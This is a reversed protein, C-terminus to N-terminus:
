HIAWERRDWNMHEGRKHAQELGTAICGMAFAPTLARGYVTKADSAPTINPLYELSRSLQHVTNTGDDHIHYKIRDILSLVGLRSARPRSTSVQSPRAPKSAFQAEVSWGPPIPTADPMEGRYMRIYQPQPSFYLDHTRSKTYRHMLYEFHLADAAGASEALRVTAAGLMDLRTALLEDTQDFAFEVPSTVRRLDRM